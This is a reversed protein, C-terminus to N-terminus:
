RRTTKWASLGPVFRLKRAALVYVEIEPQLCGPAISGPASGQAVETQSIGAETVSDAAVTCIWLKGDGMRGFLLAM